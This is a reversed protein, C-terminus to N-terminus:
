DQFEVNVVFESYGTARIRKIRSAPAADPEGAFDVLVEYDIGENELTSYLEFDPVLEDEIVTTIPQKTVIEDWSHDGTKRYYYHRQPSAGRETYNTPKM